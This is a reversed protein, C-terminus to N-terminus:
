LRAYSEIDEDFADIDLPSVTARTVSLADIYSTTTLEDAPRQSGNGNLARALAEQSARRAAYEIDAPTMGESAQALDDFNIQEAVSEPVYRQWIAIRAETDPLGIPIVYDFRGHRLFATDLARVFNTACILLLGDRDRFEAVQKLLENTVGQTPSPPDGRRQSAVEEVEDIFVVAHELDYIAEFTTRFANPLGGPLEALRSPFLEVFPWGLRSAVAKAFTTKGTGPPGFLMVARPPVVGFQDALNPQSLPTILREELLGKEQQMGSVANWLRRPLVRGGLERLKDLERRQVPMGRELYRLPNHIEFGNATLAAASEDELSTLISLKSLGLPAIRRELADLLRGGLEPGTSNELGFFVIWGQAHAARGVVAGIVRDYETAVLAYDAQCSAIVEPLSYVPPTGRQKAREWLRVIADLDDDHFERVHARQM